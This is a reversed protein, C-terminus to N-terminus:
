KLSLSSALKLLAPPSELDNHNPEAETMDPDGYEFNVSLESELRNGESDEFDLLHLQTSPQRDMASPMGTLPQKEGTKKSSNIVSEKRHLLRDHAGPHDFTGTASGTGAGTGTGKLALAPAAALKPVPIASTKTSILSKKLTECLTLYEFKLKEHTCKPQSEVWHKEINDM